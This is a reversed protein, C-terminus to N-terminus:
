YVQVYDGSTVKLIYKSNYKNMEFWVKGERNRNGLARYILSSQTFVELSNTTVNFQPQSKVLLNVSRYNFNLVWIRNLRLSLFSEVVGNHFYQIHSFPLTMFLFACTHSFLLFKRTRYGHRWNNVFANNNININLKNFM